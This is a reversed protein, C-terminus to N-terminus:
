YCCFFELVICFLIKLYCGLNWLFTPLGCKYSWVFYKAKHVCINNHSCDIKGFSKYIMCLLHRIITIKIFVKISFSPQLDFQFDLFSYSKTCQISSQKQSGAGLTKGRFIKNLGIDGVWYFGDLVLICTGMITFFIKHDCSYIIKKLTM